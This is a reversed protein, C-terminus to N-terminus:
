QVCSAKLLNVIFFQRYTLCARGAASFDACLEHKFDPIFKLGEGTYMYLHIGQIQIMHEDTFCKTNVFFM